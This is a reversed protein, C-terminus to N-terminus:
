KIYKQTFLPTFTEWAKANPHWDAIDEKLKYRKDFVFGTIDKTHIIEINEEKSLKQWIKSNLKDYSFKIKDSPNNDPIKEDYLIFIIKSKPAINKLKHISYKMIKEILIDSKDNNPYGTLFKKIKIGTLLYRIFSSKILIKEVKNSSPFLEDYYNYINSIRLYRNAHDHMYIYIIYDSNKINNNINVNAYKKYQELGFLIHEGCGSFNYIPRQTLRSLIYPFTQIKKLGHGYAYSCGLIMIPNKTNKLEIEQRNEGCFTNLSEENLLIRKVTTKEVNYQSVDINTEKYLFSSLLYNYKNDLKVAIDQKDFIYNLSLTLLIIIFLNFFIIYFIKRM